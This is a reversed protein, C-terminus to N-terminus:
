LPLLGKAACVREYAARDALHDSLAVLFQAPTCAAEALAQDFIPAVLARDADSLEGIRHVRTSGDIGTITLLRDTM